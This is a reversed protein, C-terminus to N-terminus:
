GCVYCLLLAYACFCAGLGSAKKKLEEVESEMKLKELALAETTELKMLSLRASEEKERQLREANLQAEQVAAEKEAELATGKAKMKEILAYGLIANEWTANMASKIQTVWESAEFPDSARLTLVDGSDFAPHALEFTTKDKLLSVAAGGLPLCGRPKTDFGQEDKTESDYWFLFSDKVIFWKKSWGALNALGGMTGKEPKKSLWGAMQPKLSLDDKDLGFFKDSKLQLAVAARKANTRAEGQVLVARVM